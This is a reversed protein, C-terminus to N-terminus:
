LQGMERIWFSYWCLSRVLEADSPSDVGLGEMEHVMDASTNAAAAAARNEAVGKSIAVLAEAAVTKTDDDTV